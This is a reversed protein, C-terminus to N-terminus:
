SDVYRKQGGRRYCKIQPLEGTGKEGIALRKGSFDSLLKFNKNAQCFLYLPEYSLSGLSVLNDINQGKAVMGAQVFGVDVHFKPDAL